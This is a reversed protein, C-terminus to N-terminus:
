KDRRRSAFVKPTTKAFASGRNSRHTTSCNRWVRLAHVTRTGAM